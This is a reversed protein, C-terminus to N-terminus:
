GERPPAKVDGISHHVEVVPQYDHAAIYSFSATHPDSELHRYYAFFSFSVIGLYFALGSSILAKQVSPTMEVGEAPSSSDVEFREREQHYKLRYCTECLRVESGDPLGCHYCGSM